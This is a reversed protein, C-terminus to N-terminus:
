RGPNRGRPRRDGARRGARKPVAAVATADAGHVTDDDNGARTGDRRGNHQVEALGAPRMRGQEILALAKTRNIKSWISRVRRPTFRQLWHQEDLARKQGDIWGFCLASELAEAYSVTAADAGKKAILLWAGDSNAHHKDLWTKWARQTAFRQPAPDAM